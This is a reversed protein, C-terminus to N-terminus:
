DLTTECCKHDSIPAMSSVIKHANRDLTPYNSALTLFVNTYITLSNSKSAEKSFHLSNKVHFLVIFCSANKM